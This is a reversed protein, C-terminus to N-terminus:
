CIGKVAVEWQYRGATQYLWIGADINAKWDFVSRGARGQPTSAWTTNLFQFIGSATSRPNKANPDFRSEAQAICALDRVISPPAVAYLYERPTLATLKPSPALGPVPAPWEPTLSDGQWSVLGSETWAWRNYGDTFSAQNNDSLWYAMGQTTIQTVVGDANTTPPQVPQGMDVGQNALLLFGEDLVPGPTPQLEPWEHLEVPPLPETVVGETPPSVSPTAVPQPIDTTTAAVASDVEARAPVTSQFSLRVALVLCAALLGYTITRNFNPQPFRSVAPRKHAWFGFEGTVGRLVQM